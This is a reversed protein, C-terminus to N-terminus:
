KAYMWEDIQTKAVDASLFTDVWDGGHFVKYTWHDEVRVALIQYGRYSDFAALPTSNNTKIM